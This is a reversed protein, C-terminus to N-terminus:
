WDEFFDDEKKAAKKISQARPQVQAAPAPQEGSGSSYLSANSSNGSSLSMGKVGSTVADAANPVPASASATNSYSQFQPAPASAKNSLSDSSNRGSGSGLGLDSMDSGSSSGRNSGSGYGGGGSSSNRNMGGMGGNGGGMSSSSNRGNGGAPVEDDYTDVISKALSSTAAGLGGWISGLVNTNEGAGPRNGGGNSSSREKVPGEISDMQKGGTGAGEPRPFGRPFGGDDEEEALANAAAESIKGGINGLFSWTNEVVKSANQQLAATDVKDLGIDSLLSGNGGQGGYGGGGPRYSPDSGIGGYITKQSGGGNSRGGSIRARLEEATPARQVEPLQTPLPKGEVEAQLRQKFLLAHASNYKERIRQGPDAYQEFNCNYSKLFDNMKDNGGKRMYVIQEKTWSDM